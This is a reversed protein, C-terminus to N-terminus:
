CGQRVALKEVTWYALLM